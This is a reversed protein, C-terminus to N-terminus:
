LLKVFRVKDVLRNVSMLDEHGIGITDWAHALGEAKELRGRIARADVEEEHWVVVGHQELQQIILLYQQVASSTSLAYM